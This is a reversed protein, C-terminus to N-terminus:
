AIREVHIKKKFGFLLSNLVIAEFLVSLSFVIYLGLWIFLILLDYLKKLLGNLLLVL